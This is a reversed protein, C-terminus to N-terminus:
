FFFIKMNKKVDFSKINQELASAVCSIFSLFKTTNTTVKSSNKRCKLM